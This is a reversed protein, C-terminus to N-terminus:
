DDLHHLRHRILKGNANRPLERVTMVQKPVKFADLRERCWAQLEHGAV